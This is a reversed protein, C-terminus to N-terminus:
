FVSRKLWGVLVYVFKETKVILDSPSIVPKSSVMPYTVPNPIVVGNHQSIKDKLWALGQNTQM